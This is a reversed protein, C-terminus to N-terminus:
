PREPLPPPDSSNRRLFAILNARDAADKVGKIRMETGPVYDMPAAIHANFEALTWTGVLRKVAKSYKFDEISGKERGLVSWLNPGLRSRGGEDVTHCKNCTADFVTAGADPDASALLGAVPEIAPATAGYARLLDVIDFHGFQGASFIPAYGAHLGEALSRANVDAGNEILLAVIAAHGGQAAAHLPTLGHADGAQVDAGHAILVAAVAENDGLAAAKLSTGLLYNDFDVDAGEALLVEAMARTGWIAAQHLPTGLSVDDENVDEGQEILQRVQAM